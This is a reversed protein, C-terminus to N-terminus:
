CIQIATLIAGSHSLFDKLKDGEVYDRYKYDSPSSILHVERLPLPPDQAQEETAPELLPKIFGPHSVKLHELLAFSRLLTLLHDMEMMCNDLFLVRVRSGLIKFNPMHGIYARRLILQNLNTLYSLYLEHHEHFEDYNDPGYQISTIHRLPTAQELRGPKHYYSHVNRCWTNFDIRGPRVNPISVRLELERLLHHQSRDRFTSNVYVCQQLDEPSEAVEDIIKHLLEVPLLPDTKGKPNRSNKKKKKKFSINTTM